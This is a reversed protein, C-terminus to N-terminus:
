REFQAIGVARRMINAITPHWGLTGVSGGAGEEAGAGEEVGGTAKGLGSVTSDM